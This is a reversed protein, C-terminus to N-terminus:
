LGCRLCAGACARCCPVLEGADLCLWDEWNIANAPAAAAINVAVIAALLLSGSIREYIRRAITM